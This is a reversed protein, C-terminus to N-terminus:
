PEDLFPKECFQWDRAPIGIGVPPPAPSPSTLFPLGRFFVRPLPVPSAPTPSTQFPLERKPSVQDMLSVGPLPEDPSTDRASFINFMYKWATSSTSM